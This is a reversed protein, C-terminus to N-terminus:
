WMVCSHSLIREAQGTSGGRMYSVCCLGGAVSMMLRPCLGYGFFSIVFACFVSVAPGLSSFVVWDLIM